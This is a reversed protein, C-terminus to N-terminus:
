YTLKTNSDPRHGAVVFDLTEVELPPPRVKDDGANDISVLLQVCLGDHLM